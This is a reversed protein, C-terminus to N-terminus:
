KSAEDAKPDMVVSYDRIKAKNCLDMVGAVSEWMARRDGRIIVKQRDPNNAQAQRFIMLLEEPSQKQGRILYVGERTVNVFLESPKATLPMAESAQPLQVTQEREKEPKRIEAAVIYFILLLFVCDILPTINIGDLAKGKDITLM